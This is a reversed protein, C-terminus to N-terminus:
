IIITLIICKFVRHHSLPYSCHKDDFFEDIKMESETSCHQFTITLNYRQAPTKNWGSAPRRSGNIPCSTPIQRSSVIQSEFITPKVLFGQVVREFTPLFQITTSQKKSPSLRKELSPVISLGRRLGPIEETATGRTGTPKPTIPSPNNHTIDTVFSSTDSFVSDSIRHGNRFFDRVQFCTQIQDDSITQKM